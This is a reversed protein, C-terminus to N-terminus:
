LWMWRTGAGKICKGVTYHQLNANPLYLSCDAACLGGAGIQHELEVDYTTVMWDQVEVRRGSATTLYRLTSSFFQRETSGDVGDHLHRQISVM